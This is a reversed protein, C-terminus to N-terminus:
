KVWALLSYCSPLQVSLHPLFCSPRVWLWAGMPVQVCCHCLCRLTRFNRFSVETFLSWPGSVWSTIWFVFLIAVSSIAVWMFESCNWWRSLASMLRWSELRLCWSQLKLDRTTLISAQSVQLHCPQYNPVMYRLAIYWTARLSGKFPMTTVFLGCVELLFLLPANPHLVM